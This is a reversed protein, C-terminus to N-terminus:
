DIGNYIPNTNLNHTQTNFVGVNFNKQFETDSIISNNNKEQNVMDIGFLGVKCFYVYFM